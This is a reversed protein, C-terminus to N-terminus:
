VVVTAASNDICIRRVLNGHSATYGHQDHTSATVVVIQRSGSLRVGFLFMDGHVPFSFREWAASRGVRWLLLGWGGFRPCAFVTEIEVAGWTGVGEARCDCQACFSIFFHYETRNGGDATGRCVRADRCAQAARLSMMAVRAALSSAPSHRQGLEGLQMYPSSWCRCPTFISQQPANGPPRKALVPM